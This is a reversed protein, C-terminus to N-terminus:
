QLEEFTDFKKPKKPCCDCIHMNALKPQTTQKMRSANEASVKQAAAATLQASSALQANYNADDNSLAPDFAGSNAFPSQNRHSQESSNTAPATPYLQPGEQPLASANRTGVAFGPSPAYSGNPATSSSSNSSGPPNAYSAQALPTGRKAPTSQPSPHQLQQAKTHPPPKDVQSAGRAPSSAKRKGLM